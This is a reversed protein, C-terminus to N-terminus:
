QNSGQILLQLTYKNNALIQPPFLYIINKASKVIKIIQRHLLFLLLTQMLIIIIVSIELIIQLTLQTNKLRIQMYDDFEKKKKIQYEFVIQYALMIEDQQQQDYLHQSVYSQFGYYGNRLQNQLLSCDCLSITSYQQIEPFYDYKNDFPLDYLVFQESPTCEDIVYQIISTNHVLNTNYKLETQNIAFWTLIVSQKLQMMALETQLQNVDISQQNVSDIYLFLPTYVGLSIIMLLFFTLIGYFQWILKIKKNKEEDDGKMGTTPLIQRNISDSLQTILTQINNFLFLTSYLQDRWQIINILITMYLIIAILNCIISLILLLQSMSNLEDIREVVDRTTKNKLNWLQLALEPYNDFLFQSEEGFIPVSAAEEITRLKEVMYNKLFYKLYYKIPLGKEQVMITQQDLEQLFTHYDLEADNVHISLNQYQEAGLIMFTQALEQYSNKWDDLQIGLLVLNIDQFLILPYTQNNSDMQIGAINIISNIVFGLIFGVNILVLFCSAIKMYILSNLTSNQFQHVISRVLKKQTQQNGSGYWTSAKHKNKMQNKMELFEKRTQRTKVTALIIQLQEEINQDEASNLEIEILKHTNRKQKSYTEQESKSGELTDLKQQQEFSKDKSQNNQYDKYQEFTLLLKENQTRISDLSPIFEPLIYQNKNQVQIERESDDEYILNYEDETFEITHTQHFKFTKKFTQIKRVSETPMLYKSKSVQKLIMIQRMMIDLAILKFDFEKLQYFSNVKLFQITVSTYCKKQHQGNVLFINCEDPSGLFYKMYSLIDSRLHRKPILLFGDFEFVEKEQLLCPSLYFYNLSNSDVEDLTLLIGASRSYSDIKGKENALILISDKDHLQIFGIFRLFELQRYDFRLLADVELIYKESKVMLSYQEKNVLKTQGTNVMQSIAIRHYQQLTVPVIQEIASGKIQSSVNIMSIFNNSYDKILLDGEYDCIVFATQNQNIFPITSKKHINKYDYDVKIQSYFEDQLERVDYSIGNLKIVQQMLFELENCQNFYKQTSQHLLYPVANQYNRKLLELIYIKDEIVRSINTQIKDLLRFYQMSITLNFNLKDSGGIYLQLKETVQTCTAWRELFQPHFKHYFIKLYQFRLKTQFLRQQFSYIEYLSLKLILAEGLVTYRVNKIYNDLFLLMLEKFSMQIDQEAVAYNIQQQIDKVDISLQTTIKVREHFNRNQCFCKLNQCMNMHNCFISLMLVRNLPKKYDIIEFYYAIYCEILNDRERFKDLCIYQFFMNTKYILNMFRNDWLTLHIQIMFPVSFLSLFLINNGQFYFLFLVVPFRLFSYLVVLRQTKVNLYQMHPKVYYFIGFYLDFILQTGLYIYSLYLNNIQLGALLALVSYCLPHISREFYSKILKQTHNQSFSYLSTLQSNGIALFINLVGLTFNIKDTLLSHGSNQIIIIQCLNPYADWLLDVIRKSYKYNGGFLIALLFTLSFFITVSQIIIQEVNFQLSITPLSFYYFIKLQFDERQEGLIYIAIFIWILTYFFQGLIILNQYLANRIRQNQKIILEQFKNM